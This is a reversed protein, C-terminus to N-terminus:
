MRGPEEGGDLLVEGEFGDYAHRGEGHADELATAFSGEGSGSLTSGSRGSGAAGGSGGSGGGAFSNLSTAESRSRRTEDSESAITSLRRVLRGDSMRVYVIAGRTSGSSGTSSPPAAASPGDADKPPLPPAPLDRSPRRTDNPPSPLPRESAPLSQDPDLLPASSGASLRKSSPSLSSAFSAPRRLGSFLSGYDHGHQSSDQRLWSEYSSSYSSQLTATPGGLNLGEDREDDQALERREVGSEARKEYMAKEEDRAAAAATYPPM